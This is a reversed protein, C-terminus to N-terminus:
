AKVQREVLVIGGEDMELLIFYGVKANWGKSMLWANTRQLSGSSIIWWTNGKRVVFSQHTHGLHLINPKEILERWIREARYTVGMTVPGSGHMMMYTFDKNLRLNAVSGYYKCNPLQRSVLLLADLGVEVNGKIKEEHNGMVLHIGVSSPIEKLLSVAYEIQGSIDPIALDHFETRYVGRGQLLDGAICVHKVSYEDIDRLMRKYAELVFQNSGVHFDGTLVIPTEIDGTLVFKTHTGDRVLSYYTHEGSVIKKIHYGRRDLYKLAEEIMWIPLGTQEQIDQITMPTLRKKLCALVIDPVERSADELM